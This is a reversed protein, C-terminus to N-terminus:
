KDTEVWHETFFTQYADVVTLHTQDKHSLLKPVNELAAAWFVQVLLLKNYSKVNDKIAKTLAVESYGGAPLPAPCEPKVHYSAYNEHLVNFLNELRSFFKQPNEGPRHALNTLGDVILKVDSTAAFEKKFLPWIHTWTKEAAILQPHQM